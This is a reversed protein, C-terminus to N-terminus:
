PTWHRMQSSSPGQIASVVQSVHSGHMNDPYKNRLGEASAGRVAYILNCVQLFELACVSISYAYLTTQSQHLSAHKM